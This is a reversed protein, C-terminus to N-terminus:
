TLERRGHRLRCVHRDCRGDKTPDRAVRQLEAPTRRVVRQGRGKAGCEGQSPERRLQRQERLQGRDERARRKREPERHQEVGRAGDVLEREALEREWYLDDGRSVIAHQGRRILRPPQRPGQRVCLDRPQAGRAM